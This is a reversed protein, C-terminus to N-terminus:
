DDADGNEDTDIGDRPPQGPWPPVSPPVDASTTGFQPDRRALFAEVGERVDPGQTLLHAITRTEAVHASWPDPAGLSSWLLRRGAAVAAPSTRAAIEDAIGRARERVEADPVRHQVLRAERAEASDVLRGTVYWELATAIGVIRPLYWSAAADPVIGRRAFVFGFRSGEGAVRVDMPLTMTAGVGVANGLVAGVVPKTCAAIRLAVVGGGDRPLGDITGTREVFTRHVPDAPHAVFGEELDAGVCFDDGEGTMVVARVTDDRDVEDFADLLELCTAITLANRRGPRDLAITAVGHDVDYRVSRGV